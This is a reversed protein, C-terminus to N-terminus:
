GENQSARYNISLIKGKLSGGDLHELVLFIENDELHGYNILKIINQHELKSLIEIEKFDFLVESNKKKLVKIAYEKLTFRQIASYIKGFGGEGIKKTIKFCKLLGRYNFCENEKCFFVIRNLTEKSIFLSLDSDDYIQIGYFSFIKIEIANGKEKGYNSFSERIFSKLKQLSLNKIKALESFNLSSKKSNNNEVVIISDREMSLSYEDHESESM